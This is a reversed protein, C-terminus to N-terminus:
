AVEGLDRSLLDLLRWHHCRRTELVNLTNDCVHYITVIGEGFHKSWLFILWPVIVRM